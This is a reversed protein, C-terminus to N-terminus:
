KWETERQERVIEESPRPDARKVEQERIVENGQDVPSLAALLKRCKPCTVAQPRNTWSAVKLNIARHRSFCLAAVDGNDNIACGFHYIKPNPYAM